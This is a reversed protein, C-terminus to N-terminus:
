AVDQSQSLLWREEYLLFGCWSACMRLAVCPAGKDPAYAHLAWIAGGLALGMGIRVAWHSGKGKAPEEDLQVLPWFAEDIGKEQLKCCGDM